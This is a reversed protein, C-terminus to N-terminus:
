IMAASKGLLYHIRVDVTITDEAVRIFFIKLTTRLGSFRSSNIDCLIVKVVHRPQTELPPAVKNKKKFNSSKM